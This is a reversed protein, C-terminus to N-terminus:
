IGPNVQEINSWFCEIERATSAAIRRLRNQEEKRGREERLKKEEHHRAVTRILQLLLPQPGSVMCGCAPVCPGRGGVSVRLPVHRRRSQPHVPRAWVLM